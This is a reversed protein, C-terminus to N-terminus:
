LELHPLKRFNPTGYTPTRIILIRSNLTSRFSGHLWAKFGCLVKYRGKKLLSALFDHLHARFMHSTRLGLGLGQCGLCLCVVAQLGVGSVWWKRLLLTIFPLLFATLRIRVAGRRTFERPVVHGKDTPARYGAVIFRM